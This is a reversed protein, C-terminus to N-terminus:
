GILTGTPTEKHVVALSFGEPTKGGLLMAQSEYGKIIRPELNTVFVVQKGVLEEPSFYLAIGSVVQRPNEEGLNVKLLLLKDTEPIKEASLITGVKM